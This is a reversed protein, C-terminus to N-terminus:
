CPSGRISGLDEAVVDIWVIVRHWHNSANRTRVRCIGHPLHNKRHGTGAPKIHTKTFQADPLGVAWRWYQKAALEDNGSHLHLALTFRASPDLYRRVWAIFARLMAPDSNALDLYNRTKAGEGWYLAVGGVFRADDLHSLGYAKAESRIGDIEMHRKRQTDRPLGIFTHPGSRKRIAEIQGQTLIVDRSWNSLTSRPVPIVHQIETYTLGLRRLALGLQKREWPHLEDWQSAEHLLTDPIVPTM